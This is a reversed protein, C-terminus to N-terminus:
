LGTDITRVSEHLLLETTVSGGILIWSNKMM